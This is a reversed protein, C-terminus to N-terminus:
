FDLPMEGPQVAEFIWDDWPKDPNGRDEIYVWSELMEEEAQAKTRKAFMYNSKSPEHRISYRNIPGSQTFPIDGSVRDKGRVNMVWHHRDGGCSGAFARPGDERRLCAKTLKNVFRGKCERNNDKCDGIFVWQQDPTNRRPQMNTLSTELDVTLVQRTFLGRLYYAQGGDDELLSNSVLNAHLEGRDCACAKGCGNDGGCENQRGCEATCCTEINSVLIGGIGAGLALGRGRIRIKISDGEKFGRYKFTYVDPTQDFNLDSENLMYDASPNDSQAVIRTLPLFRGDANDTVINLCFAAPGSEKLEMRNVINNSGNRTEPDYVVGSVGTRGGPLVFVPWNFGGATRVGPNEEKSDHSFTRESLSRPKPIDSFHTFSKFGRTYEVSSGHDTPLDIDSNELDFGPFYHVYEGWGPESFDVRQEPQGVYNIKHWEGDSDPNGCDDLSKQAICEELRNDSNSCATNILFSILLGVLLIFRMIIM